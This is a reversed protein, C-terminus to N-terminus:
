LQQVMPLMHAQTLMHVMPLIVSFLLGPNRHISEFCVAVMWSSFVEQPVMDQLLFLVYQSANRQSCHYLKDRQARGVKVLSINSTFYLEQM